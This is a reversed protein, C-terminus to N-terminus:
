NVTRVQLFPPPFPPQHAVEAIASFKLSFDDCWEASIHGPKVHSTYDFPTLQEVVIRWTGAPLSKIQITRRNPGPIAHIIHPLIQFYFLPHSSSFLLRIKLGIDIRFLL